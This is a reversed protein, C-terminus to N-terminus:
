ENMIIWVVMAATAASVDVDSESHNGSSFNLALLVHSWCVHLLINCFPGMGFCTANMMSPLLLNALFNDTSLASPCRLPNSLNASTVLCQHKEEGSYPVYNKETITTLSLASIKPPLLPIFLVAHVCCRM